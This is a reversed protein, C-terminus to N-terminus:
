RVHELLQRGWSNSNLPTSRSGPFYAFPQPESSSLLSLNLSRVLQTSKDVCGDGYDQLYLHAGFTPQVFRSLLQPESLTLWFLILPSVLLMSLTTYLGIPGDIWPQPMFGTSLIIWLVRAHNDLFNLVSSLCYEPHDLISLVRPYVTTRHFNFFSLRDCIM